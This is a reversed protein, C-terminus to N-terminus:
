NNFATIEGDKNKYEEADIARFRNGKISEIDYSYGKYGSTLIVVLIERKNKDMHSKLISWNFGGDTIVVNIIRGQEKRNLNELVASISTTGSGTLKELLKGNRYHLERLYSNFGYAKTKKPFRKESSRLVGELVEVDRQGMSGSIDCYISINDVSSRRHPTVKSPLIVGSHIFKKNPRRFSSSKNPIYSEILNELEKIWNKNIVIYNESLNKILEMKDLLGRYEDSSYMSEMESFLDKIDEMSQESESVEASITDGELIDNNELEEKLSQLKSNIEEMQVDIDELQADIEGIDMSTYMGTEGINSDQEMDNDEYSSKGSYTHEDSDEYLSDDASHDGFGELSEGEPTLNVTGDEVDNLDYLQNISDMDTVDIDLEELNTIQEDLDLYDEESDLNYNYQENDEERYPEESKSLSEMIESLTEYEKNNLTENISNLEEENLEERNEKPLSNFEEILESEKKDFINEQRNLDLKDKLISNLESDKEIGELSDILDEIVEKQFGNRDLVKRLSNLYFESSYSEDELCQQYWEQYIDPPLKSTLELVASNLKDKDVGKFMSQETSEKSPIEEKTEEDIVEEWTKIDQTEEQEINEKPSYEERDPTEIDSVWEDNEEWKDEQQGDWEELNNSDDQFNDETVYQNELEEKKELKEKERILNNREHELKILDEGLTKNRELLYSLKQSKLLSDGKVTVKYKGSITDYMDVVIDLKKNPDSNLKLFDEYHPKMSELLSNQIKVPNFISLIPYGDIGLSRLDLERDIYSKSIIESVPRRYGLMDSKRVMTDSIVKEVITLYIYMVFSLYDKDGGGNPTRIHMGTVLKGMNNLLKHLMQDQSLLFFQKGVYITKGNTYIELNMKTLVLRYSVLTGYLPAIKLIEYKLSDLIEYETMNKDKFHGEQIVEKDNTMERLRQKGENMQTEKAEQSKKRVRGILSM